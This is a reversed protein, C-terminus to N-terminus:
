SSGHNPVRQQQECGQRAGRLGLDDRQVALEALAARQEHDVARRAAHLDAVPYLAHLQHRHPRHLGLDFHAPLAALDGEARRHVHAAARALGRAGLDDQRDAGAPV